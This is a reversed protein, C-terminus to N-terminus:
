AFVNERVLEILHSYRIILTIIIAYFGALADDLMCGWGGHVHQDVWRCGLPKTIDIVRFLIFSIIALTITICSSGTCGLAALCAIWTGFFEDVVVTRPDEGWYREMVNDTWVGIFLTAFVLVVTAITLLTPTLLFYMGIWIMLAIFGALTGPGWPWFGTGFGTSIIVHFWPAEGLPHNNNSSM